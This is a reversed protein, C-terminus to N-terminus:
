LINEFYPFLIHTSSFYSAKESFNLAVYELPRKSVWKYFKKPLFVANIPFLDKFKLMLNRELAVLIGTTISYNFGNISFMKNSHM